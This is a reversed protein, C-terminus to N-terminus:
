RVPLKMTPSRRHLPGKRAVATLGWAGAGALGSAQAGDIARVMADVDAQGSPGLAGWLAGLGLSIWPLSWTPLSRAWRPGHSRLLWVLMALAYPSLRHLADRWTM